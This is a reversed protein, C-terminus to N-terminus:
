GEEKQNAARDIESDPNTLPDPRRVRNACDTVLARPPQAIGMGFFEREGRRMQRGFAEFFRQEFDSALWPMRQLQQQPLSMGGDKSLALDPNAASDGDVRLRASVCHNRSIVM